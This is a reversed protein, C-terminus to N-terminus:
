ERALPKQAHVADANFRFAVEEVALPYDKRLPHGEWNEPMLIRSLDPHGAFEIGFLDWTEREHWNATPYIAVVSPVTPEGAPLPVKIRLLRAPAGAQPEPEGGVVAAPLATLHYVVQFRPEIDLYDVGTVSRLLQYGREDRLFRMLELLADQRVLAAPEGHAAETALVAEPFREALAALDAQSAATVVEPLTAGRPPSDM